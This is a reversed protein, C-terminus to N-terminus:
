PGTTPATAPPHEVMQDMPSWLAAYSSTGDGKVLDSQSMMVVHGDIFGFNCRGSPEEMTHRRPDHRYFTIQSARDAFRGPTADVPTKWTIGKGGGFRAGPKGVLGAVAQATYVLPSSKEVPLEPWTELLLILKSNDSGGGGLKFLKGPSKPGNLFKQTKAGVAGSAYFNMSYSRVSDDLDNPCRFVGGALGASPDAGEPVAGPRGVKDPATLYQGIVPEHFWYLGTNSAITPFSGHNQSAYSILATCIQRMNSTCTIDRGRRRVSSLVPLLISVLITIIGLVVLLEVLTFAAEKRGSIKVFLSTATKRGHTSLM